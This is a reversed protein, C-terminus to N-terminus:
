KRDSIRLKQLRSFYDTSRTVFANIAVFDGQALNGLFKLFLEDISQSGVLIENEGFFDIENSSIIPKLAIHGSNQKIETIMEQTISKSLQVNPQDFANVGIMACAASTAIEWKLFEAGLDYPDEIEFTITPHGSRALKELYANHQGDKSFYVFIRDGKYFDLEQFPELDIPLIGKGNKGSSEAILQEIWSGM